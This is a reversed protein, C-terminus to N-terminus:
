KPYLKALNFQKNLIEWSTYHLSLFSLSLSHAHDNGPNGQDDSTYYYDVSYDDGVMEPYEYDYNGLDIVDIEHTKFYVYTKTDTQVM